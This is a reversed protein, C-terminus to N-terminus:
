LRSEVDFLNPENPTVTTGGCRPTFYCSFPSHLASNLLHFFCLNGYRQIYRIHPYQACLDIFSTLQDDRDLAGFVTYDAASTPSLDVLPVSIFVPSDNAVQRYKPTGAIQPISSPPILLGVKVPMNSCSCYVPMQPSIETQHCIRFYRWHPNFTATKTITLPLNFLSTTALTNKAVFCGGSITFSQKAAGAIVATPLM